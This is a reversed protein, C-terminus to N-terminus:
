RRCWWRPRSAALREASLCSHASTKRAAALVKDISLYSDGQYIHRDTVGIAFPDGERYLGAAGGPDIVPTVSTQPDSITQLRLVDLAECLPWKM